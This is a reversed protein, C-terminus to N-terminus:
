KRNSLQTRHRGSCISSCYKAIKRKPMFLKKCFLCEQSKRRSAGHKTKPANAVLTKLRGDKTMHCKRCLWEWDSIERKYEGSINALDIPPAEKCCQCKEPKPFIKRIYTHLADIGVKDGKWRHSHEGYKSCQVSCFRVKPGRALFEMGCGICNKKILSYAM